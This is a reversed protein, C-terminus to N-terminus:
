LKDACNTQPLPLSLSLSPSLPLSLSLSPPLSLSPSLSHTRRIQLFAGNRLICWKRAQMVFCSAHRM